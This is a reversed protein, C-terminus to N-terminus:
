CLSNVPGDVMGISFAGSAPTGADVAEDKSLGVSCAGRSIVGEIVAGSRGTLGALMGNTLFTSSSLNDVRNSVEGSIDAVSTESRGSVLAVVVTFAGM